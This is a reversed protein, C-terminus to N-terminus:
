AVSSYTPFGVNNNEVKGVNKYQCKCGVINDTASIYNVGAQSLMLGIMALIITKKIRLRMKRNEGVNQLCYEIM